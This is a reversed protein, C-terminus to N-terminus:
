SYIFQVNKIRIRPLFYNGIRERMNDIEIDKFAKFLNFSIMGNKIPIEKREKQLLSNALSISVNGTSLDVTHWGMAMNVLIADGDISSNGKEIIINGRYISAPVELNGANFIKKQHYKRGLFRDSLIGTIKGDKILYKENAPNGEGDFQNSGVMQIKSDSRITLKKDFFIKNMNKWITDIKNYILPAEFEKLLTSILSILADKEFIVDIKRTSVEKRNSFRKAMEEAENRIKEVDFLHLDSDSNYVVSDKYKIGIEAEFTTKEFSKIEGENGYISKIYSSSVSSGPSDFKTENLIKGIKILRDIDLDYVEEDFLETQSKGRKPLTLKREVPTNKKMNKAIEELIKKNPEVVSGTSYKKGDFLRILFAGRKSNNIKEIKKNSYSISREIEEIGYVEVEGFKKLNKIIYEVKNVLEEVM